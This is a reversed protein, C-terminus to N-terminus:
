RFAGLVASVVWFSIVQWGNKLGKRYEWLALFTGILWTVCQLTLQIFAFWPLPLARAGSYIIHILPLLVCALSLLLTTTQYRSHNALRTPIAAISKARLTGFIGLLLLNVVPLLLDIFCITLFSGGFPGIHYPECIVAFVSSNSM